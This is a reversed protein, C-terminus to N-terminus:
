GLDKQKVGSKEARTTKLKLFNLVEFYDSWICSIHYLNAKM